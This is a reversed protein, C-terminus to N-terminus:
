QIIKPVVTFSQTLNIKTMQWLHAASVNVAVRIQEQMGMVWSWTHKKQSPETVLTPKQSSADATGDM